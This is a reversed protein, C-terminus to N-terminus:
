QLATLFPQVEAAPTLLTIASRDTFTLRLRGAQETASALGTRPGEWRLRLPPMEDTAPRFLRSSKSLLLLRRDTLALLRPDTVNRIHEDLGIALSRPAGQVGRKQPVPRRLRFPSLEARTVRGEDLGDARGVWVASLYTEGPQLQERVRTESPNLAGSGDKIRSGGTQWRTM